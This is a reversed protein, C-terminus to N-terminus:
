RFSNTLLGIIEWHGANSHIMFPTGGNTTVAAIDAGSLILLKALTVDKAQHLPTCGYADRTNVDAGAKLLEEVFLPHNLMVALSLATNGQAGALDVKAGNALLHRMIRLRCQETVGDRTGAVAAMLPTDGFSDRSNPDAGSTLLFKVVDEQGYRTAKHLPM